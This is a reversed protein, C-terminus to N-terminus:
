PEYCVKYICANSNSNALQFKYLVNRQFNSWGGFMILCGSNKLLESQMAAIYGSDTIGGTIDVFQQEWEDITLKGSYVSKFLESEITTIMTKTLYKKDKTDGFRGLDQALFVMGTTSINNITKQLQSICSNFFMMPSGKGKIFYYKARQVSRFSIALYKGFDSKLINRAYKRSDDCIRKSSQIMKIVELSRRYEPEIIRVRDKQIGKWVGFWVVVTSPDLNGYIINTFDNVHISPRKNFSICVRRVVEMNMELAQMLYHQIKEEFAPFIEKCATENMIEDNVLALKSTQQGADQVLIIKKPNHAMFAHWSVLPMASVNLCMENWIEVDFYDHFYLANQLKNDSAYNHYQSSRVFPEVPFAGVTKAWKSLTLLNMAAGIQQEYYRSVLIFGKGSGGGGGGLNGNYFSQFSDQYEVALKNIYPKINIDLYDLCYLIIIIGGSGGLIM